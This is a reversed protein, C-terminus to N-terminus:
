HILSYFPLMNKNNSDIFLSVFGLRLYIGSIERWVWSM